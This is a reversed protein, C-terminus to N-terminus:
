LISAIAAAGKIMASWTAGQAAKADAQAAVDKAEAMLQFSQAQEEYGAEEILGQQGAVAREIAAQSASDRMVDIASGSMEFNNSAIDAATDGETQFDKRQLQYEKINTSEVTYTKNLEALNAALRYEQAEIIDGQQKFKLADASFLDSVAGGALSITSSGFGGGLNLLGPM